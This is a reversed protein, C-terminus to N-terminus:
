RRPRRQRMLRRMIQKLAEKETMPENSVAKLVSSLSYGAEIAIKKHRPKMDGVKFKWKERKEEYEEIVFEEELSSMNELEEKILEKLRQKTIKMNKFDGKKSEKMMRKEYGAIYSDRLMQDRAYEAPIPHLPDGAAAASKGAQFAVPQSLDGPTLIAPPDDSAMDGSVMDSPTPIYVSDPTGKYEGPHRPRPDDYVKGRLGGPMGHEMGAVRDIAVDFNRGRAFRADNYGEIYEPIDRGHRRPRASKADDFGLNYMKEMYSLSREEKILQKLTDKTIKMGNDGQSNVIVLKNKPGKITKNIFKKSYKMNKSEALSVDRPKEVQALQDLLHAGLEPSCKKCDFGEWIHSDALANLEHKYLSADEFFHDWADDPFNRLRAQISAHSLGARENLSSGGRKKVFNDLKKGSFGMRKGMDRLHLQNRRDFPDTPVDRGVFPGVGQWQGPKRAANSKKAKMYMRKAVPPTSIAWNIFLDRNKKDEFFGAEWMDMMRAGSCALMVDWKNLRRGLIARMASLDAYLEVQLDKWKVGPMNLHTKFCTKMMKLMRESYYHSAGASQTARIGPVTPASTLERIVNNLAHDKAHALEHLALERWERMAREFYTRSWLGQLDVITIKKQAPSYRAAPVVGARKKDPANQFQLKVSNIHEVIAELVSSINEEVYNYEVGLKVLANKIAGERGYIEKDIFESKHKEFEDRFNKVWKNAKAM